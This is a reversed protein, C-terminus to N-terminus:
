RTFGYDVFKSGSGLSYGGGSVVVKSSRCIFFTLSFFHM